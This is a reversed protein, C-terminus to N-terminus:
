IIQFGFVFSSEILIDLSFPEKNSEFEFGLISDLHISISSDSIGWILTMIFALWSYSDIIIYIIVVITQIFILVVNILSSKKAGIKDVIHGVVLAGLIEGIGLTAMAM